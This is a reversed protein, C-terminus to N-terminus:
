GSHRDYDRQEGNNSKRVSIIRKTAGREVFVATWCREGIRGIVKFRDEGDIPRHSALLIQDPDDFIAIGFALSVDHKERNASDKSPDFDYPQAM